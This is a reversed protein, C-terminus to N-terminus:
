FFKESLIDRAEDVGDISDHDTIAIVDYGANYYMQVVETSTYLKEEIKIMRKIDNNM